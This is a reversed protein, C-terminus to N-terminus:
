LRHGGRAVWADILVRAISVEGPLRPTGTFDPASAAVIEAYSFWRVEAMEGVQPVPDGGEAGAEYGLM